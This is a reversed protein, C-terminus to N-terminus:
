KHNLIYVLQKADLENMFRKMDSWSIPIKSELYQKHLKFLLPKMIFPCDKIDKEKKIRIQKYMTYVDNTLTHIKDRYNTFQHQMEPFYSLYESLKHKKRLEIYHYLPNMQNSKLDLVYEYNPNKWTYRKNNMKYTYGKCMWPYSLNDNLESVHIPKIIEFGNMDKYIFYMEETSLETISDNSKDFVNILVVMNKCVPTVIRNKCHRLVFSYSHNTNLEDYNLERTAEEFLKVFQPTKYNHNKGGIESRSSIKWENNHYFLNIMTGDIIQQLNNLLDKEYDEISDKKISKMPSLCVIKNTNSDIIASKCYSKWLTDDEILVDTNYNMKVLYLKQSSYKRVKFGNKKLIDLYNSNEDIIKQLEM